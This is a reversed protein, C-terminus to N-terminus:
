NMILFDAEVLEMKRDLSTSLGPMRVQKQQNIIETNYSISSQKIIGQLLPSHSGSHTSTRVM